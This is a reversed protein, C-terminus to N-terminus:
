KLLLCSLSLRFINVKIMRCQGCNTNLVAAIHMTHCTCNETVEKEYKFRAEYNQPIMCISNGHQTHQLRALNSFHYQSEKSYVLMSTEGGWFFNDSLLSGLSSTLFSSLYVDWLRQIFLQVTQLVQWMKVTYHRTMKCHWVLWDWYCFIEARWVPGRMNGYPMNMAGEPSNLLHVSTCFGIEEKGKPSNGLLM